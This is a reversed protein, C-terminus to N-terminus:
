LKKLACVVQSSDIVGDWFPQLAQGIALEREHFGPYRPRIYARKMANASDAYFNNFRLNVEPSEWVVRAAPQGNNEVSIRLQVDDSAQFMAYDVIMDFHDRDRAHHALGLGVGGLIPMSHSHGKFCPPALVALHRGYPEIKFYNVYGFISPSYGIGPQTAMASYIDWPGWHTSNPPCYTILSRLLDLAYRAAEPDFDGVSLSRFAPADLSAMVTLFMCSGLVGEVSLVIPYPLSKSKVAKAWTALEEWLPPIAATDIIDTRSIGVHCAADLPFAYYSGDVCYSEASPPVIREMVDRSAQSGIAADIAVLWDNDVLTGVWPHDYMILDYRGDEGSLSEIVAHEFEYWDKQEWVVQCGPHGLNWEVSGALLPDYGRTNKWTIGYVTVQSM